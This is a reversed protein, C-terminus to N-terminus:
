DEPGYLTLNLRKINGSAVDAWHGTAGHLPEIRAPGSMCLAGVPEAALSGGSGSRAHAPGQPSHMPGMDLDEIVYNPCMGPLLGVPLGELQELASM